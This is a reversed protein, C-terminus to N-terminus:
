TSRRMPESIKSSPQLAIERRSRALAELLDGTSLPRRLYLPQDVSGAGTVAEFAALPAAEDDGSEVLVVVSVDGAAAALKDAFRKTWGNKHKVAVVLVDFVMGSDMWQELAHQTGAHLVHHGVQQLSRVLARRTADVPDVLFFTLGSSADNIRSADEGLRAREIVPAARPWRLIFTTGVGTQSAIDITGHHQTVFGYVMALGLGTGKGNEKTTFFPEFIRLQTEPTMGVGTDSVRLEVSETGTTADIHNETILHLTGGDPMADRANIALNTLIQIIQQEDARISWLDGHLGLVIEIREGIVRRIMSTAKAIARNLCFIQSRATSRRCFAMLDRTLSAAHEAARVIDHVEESGRPDDYFTSERQGILEANALIATLLNNFDHAVGGALRGLAELKQSQALQSELKKRETLDVVTGSFGTVDGSADFKARADMYVDRQVGARTVVRFEVPAVRGTALAQGIVSRVRARDDRHIRQYFARTTPRFSASEGFIRSLEESWVYAGEQLDWRFSGVQAIRQAQVLEENVRALAQERQRMETLDLGIGISRAARGNRDGVLAYHLKVARWSGDRRLIKCEGASSDGIKELERFKRMYRERQEPHIAAFFREISAEDTAPNLDLLRFFGPSWTLQNSALDLSWAGLPLARELLAFLEVISDRDGSPWETKFANGTDQNRNQAAALAQALQANEARLRVLEDDIRRRRLPGSEVGESDGTAADEHALM